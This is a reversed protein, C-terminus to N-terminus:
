WILLEKNMLRLLGEVFFYDAYILPVHYTSPRHYAETGGAIIGDSELSWDAYKEEIARIIKFATQQYNKRESPSVWEALELLSCVACMGASTDYIEPKEPAFFDVKPVYNTDVIAVIFNNAVKKALALYETNKTYRYSLAFGYIAWANGRSWVSDVAFGQGGIQEVFEGNEADFSAIHGVTGDKRVLYKGITNAHRCAIKKFRPDQTQESAWYLLPLNMMSDIIAWGPKQDNWAVIYNGDINFRGALVNAAHLGTRFAQEDGLLRYHAVASPLFLFGVDHHVDKFQYLIQNLRSEQVIATQVFLNERTAHYLQWLIGSWFGNTWWDIGREEAVDTYRGDYPIYPIGEGLRQIEVRIKETVKVLKTEAWDSFEKEILM